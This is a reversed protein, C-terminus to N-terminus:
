AAEKLHQRLSSFRRVRKKESRALRAAFLRQAPTAITPPLVIFGSEGVPLFRAVIAERASIPRGATDARWYAPLGLDAKVPGRILFFGDEARVLRVKGDAIAARRREWDSMYASRRARNESQWRRFAEREQAKHAHYFERRKARYHEANRAKMARKMARYRDRNRDRWAQSTERRRQRNAKEWLATKANARARRCRDSCIAGNPHAPTFPQGCERCPREACVAKSM